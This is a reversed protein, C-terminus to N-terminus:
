NIRIRSNFRSPNVTTQTTALTFDIFIGAVFCPSSACQPTWTVNFRYVCDGTGYTHCIQGNANFGYLVDTSDYYINKASTGDIIVLSNTTLPCDFSKDTFCSNLNGNSGATYTNKWSYANLLYSQLDYQIMHITDELTQQGSMTNPFISFPSFVMTMGLSMILLSIIVIFVVNGSQNQLHRLKLFVHTHM